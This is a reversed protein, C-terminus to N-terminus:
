KKGDFKFSVEGEEGSLSSPKFSFYKLKGYETKELAEFVQRFEDKTHDHFGIMVKQKYVAFDFKAPNFEIGVRFTNNTIQMCAALEALAAEVGAGADVVLSLQCGKIGELVFSADEMADYMDNGKEPHQITVTSFPLVNNFGYATDEIQRLVKAGKDKADVQVEKKWDHDKKKFESYDKLHPFCLARFEEQGSVSVTKANMEVAAGVAEAAAAPAQAVEAEEVVKEKPKEVEKAAYEKVEKKKPKAEVKKGRGGM